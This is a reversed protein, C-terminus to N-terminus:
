GILNLATCYIYFVPIALYLADFRDLIGGHGPILKGSDKVDIVRKFKSELLDGGVASLAVLLGLVAWVITSSPAANGVELAQQPEFYLWWWALATAVGFILGGGFGEWSKKPSIKPAMKHRGISMGVLYAGVDNAWVTTILVIVMSWSDRMLMVLATALLIYATGGMAWWLKNKVPHKRLLSTLEIIGGVGVVGWLVYYWANESATAELMAIAIVLASLTRIILNKM